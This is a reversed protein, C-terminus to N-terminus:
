KTHYEAFCVDACLGVKCKRCEYQTRGSCDDGVCRRRPDSRQILNDTRDYRVDDKAVTVKQARAAICATWVTEPLFVAAARWFELLNNTEPCGAARGLLWANQLSM